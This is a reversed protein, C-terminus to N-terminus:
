PLRPMREVQMWTQFPYIYVHQKSSNKNGGSRIPLLRLQLVTGANLRVPFSKAICGTDSYVDGISNSAIMEHEVDGCVTFVKAIIRSITGSYTVSYRVTYWGSQLVRLGGGTEGYMSSLIDYYNRNIASIYSMGRALLIWEPDNHKVSKCIASTDDGCYEDDDV